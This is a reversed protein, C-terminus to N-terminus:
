EGMVPLTSTLAFAASVSTFTLMVLSWVGNGPAVTFVPPRTTHVFLVAETCVTVLLQHGRCADCKTEQNETQGRDGPERECLPRGGAAGQDGGSAILDPRRDRGVTRASRDDGPV